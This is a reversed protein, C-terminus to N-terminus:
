KSKMGMMAIVEEPPRMDDPLFQLVTGTLGELPTYTLMTLGNTTMTRILMEEYVDQPPEEDTWILHQETGQFAKRGQFYSKLGVHSFGGSVHRIKVTDVLDAVGAKWNIREQDICGVPILGSEDLGKSNGSWEVEGFLTKQVVDRTTENTDGSAWARIPHHFRYGPWWDPYLGTVHATFEFGGGSYTKGVRNAAMFCRQSYDRGAEFFEMHRAYLERRYPGTDPFLDEFKYFRARHQEAQIARAM